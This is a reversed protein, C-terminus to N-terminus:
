EHEKGYLIKTLLDVTLNELGKKDRIEYDFEQLHFIWRILRPQADNTFLLHKASHNTYVIM